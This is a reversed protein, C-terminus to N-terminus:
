GNLQKKLFKLRKNRKEFKKDRYVKFSLPMVEVYDNQITVLKYKFGSELYNLTYNGEENLSYPKNVNNKNYIKIPRSFTILTDKKVDNQASIKYTSFLFLLCLYYMTKM